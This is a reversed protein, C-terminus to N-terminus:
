RTRIMSIIDNNDHIDMILTMMLIDNENIYSKADIFGEIKTEVTFRTM